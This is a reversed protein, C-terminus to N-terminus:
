KEQKYTKIGTVPLRRNKEGNKKKQFSSKIDHNTAIKEEHNCQDLGAM